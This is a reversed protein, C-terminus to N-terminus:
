WPMTSGDYKIFEGSRSLTFREICDRMGSVSEEVGILANPGGMDTRAWGPHLILVGISQARLDIALSHMVANLGAKSSRYLLSGGSGNDSISGMLSSVNVILKRTGRQLQPLFAEAMKVPAVTNITLTTQWQPYDLQGFGQGPADGYVGANNLLVDIAESKLRESLADIQAFDAVDLVEVQISAHQQALQILAQSSAPNRCTAIVRWGAEAYQRCFELGLGRNAGTVLITQM